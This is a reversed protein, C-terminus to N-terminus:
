HPHYGLHTVSICVSVHLSLTQRIYCSGTIIHEGDFELSYVRNSHGQLTHLCEATKPCWVKVTWDYGGSVVFEGNYKVCRVAASHGNLIHECKGSIIVCTNVNNYRVTLYSRM